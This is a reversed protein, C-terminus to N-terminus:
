HYAARAAATKRYGVTVPIYARYAEPFKVGHRVIGGILHYARVTNRKVFRTLIVSTDARALRAKGCIYALGGLLLAALTGLAAIDDYGVVYLERDHVLEAFRHPRFEEFAHLVVLEYLFAVLYGHADRAALVGHEHREAHFAQM